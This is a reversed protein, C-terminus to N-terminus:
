FFFFFSVVEPSKSELFIKSDLCVNSFLYVFILCCSIEGWRLWICMFVMKEMLSICISKYCLIQCNGAEDRVMPQNSISSLIFLSQLQGYYTFVELVSDQNTKGFIYIMWLKPFLPVIMRIFPLLKSLAFYTKILM